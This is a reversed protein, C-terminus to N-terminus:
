REPVDYPGQDDHSKSPRPKVNGRASNVVAQNSSRPKVQGSGGSEVTAQNSGATAQSSSRRVQGRGSKIAAQNSRPGLVVSRARDDPGTQHRDDLIVTDHRRPGQSCGLRARGSRCRGLRDTVARLLERDLAALPSAAGFRPHAAMATALRARRRGADWVRVVASGREAAAALTGDGSLAAAPAAPRCPIAAVPRGAPVDCMTGEGGNYQM